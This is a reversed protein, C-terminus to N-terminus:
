VASCSTIQTNRQKHSKSYQGLGSININFTLVNYEEAGTLIEVKNAAMTVSHTCSLGVRGPGVGEVCVCQWPGRINEWKQLALAKVFSM